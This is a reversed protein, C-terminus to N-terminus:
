PLVRISAIRWRDEERRMTIRLPVRRPVVMAREVTSAAEVVASDRTIFRISNVAIRRPTLIVWPENVGPTALWPGGTVNNLSQLKAIEADADASATFLGAPRPSHSLAALVAEIQARDGSEAALLGTAALILCLIANV